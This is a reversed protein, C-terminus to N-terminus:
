SCIQTLQSFFNIFSHCHLIYHFFLRARGGLFTSYIFSLYIALSVGLRTLRIDSHRLFFFCVKFIQFPGRPVEDDGEPGEQGTPYAVM